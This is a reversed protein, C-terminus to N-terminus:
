LTITLITDIPITAKQNEDLLLYETIHHFHLLLLNKEGVHHLLQIHLLIRGLKTGVVKGGYTGLKLGPQYNKQDFITLTSYSIDM